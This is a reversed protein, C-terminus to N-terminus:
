KVFAALIKELNLEGREALDYGIRVAPKKINIIRSLDIPTGIIVADCPTNNVSDELDKLQEPYYGMAPLLNGLHKFRNLVEKLSGVAYPRPDVIEAAGFRRAAVVGAGFPMEGHTLTPGDEVVLVKKGKIAAEDAVKLVSDAVIVKCTPNVEAVTKQLAAINEPTASDAKNIIAYQARRLNTEGPHYLMEHGVRHPDLVVIELDPKVFATDNNGGDWLIIDSEEEAKKLIAGYDVGAFIVFGNAVYPEYEEMEEITCDHIKLDELTAFRQVAQKALDGYPMPHRMVGVKKGMKSLIETIKRSTQSKGCGTRIAGVAIVPKKSKLMTRGPGLLVFDAGLAAARSAQHMVYEHRVDSYAFVVRTVNNEKIIKELDAEPLIPIGQPYLPGALEAPYRRGAIKPIQNATFAVVNTEKDDRYCMNFNHFDRGAAGMIVTNIASM